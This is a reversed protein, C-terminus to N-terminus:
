WVPHNFKRISPLFLSIDFVSPTGDVHIGAKKFAKLSREVSVPLDKKVQLVTSVPIHEGSVSVHQSDDILTVPSKSVAIEFTKEVSYLPQSLLEGLCWDCTKIQQFSVKIKVSGEGKFTLTEKASGISSCDVNSIEVLDGGELIEFKPELAFVDSYGGSQEVQNKIEDVLVNPNYLNQLSANLTVTDGVKAQSPTDLSLTPTEVTLVFPSGINIPHDFDYNGDGLPKVLQAQLTIQGPHHPGANFDASLKAYNTQGASVIGAIDDGSHGSNFFYNLINSQILIGYGDYESPINEIKVAELGYNEMPYSEGLQLSSPLNYTVKINKFAETNPSVAIEFTKEVSYLPQSLLEGLCWDCTKIQQFSVKIKVSGEGKFTLTEKASGISSCDVNSIEVLDGGELIEFKPELAFVDSYGGSQEVQNKIEDVLVNPNYLNQLSANLTVTDGVKAQSPTDLSLTPTEVTLVFPSGINIPHDFDYNGDGLPKVLQAQLTIQGPHHPGANFDASLKAYNTQGASVIGAIDDGSHGSNFFYNLINSQILIGYGDYESPINEIKVAELGHNEMPYSEGLQLSSPLDYTVKIEGEAAGAFPAFLLVICFALLFSLGRKVCNQNM